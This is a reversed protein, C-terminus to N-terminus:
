NSEVERNPSFTVHQTKQRILELAHTLTTTVDISARGAIRDTAKRVDGKVTWLGAILPLDAFRNQIRKCLYRAHTVAAPPLASVCILDGRASKVADLMESALSTQSVNTAIYGARHLLQTLMLGVIEDAEDNAPLTVVNISKAPASQSLDDPDKEDASKDRSRSRDWDDMEDVLERVSRRIMQIRAEDLRNRHWDSEAMALAPLLLDDYAQQLSHDKLHERMMVAPEEEDMALLRQYMKVPPEFPPTDGLLVDLFQMQPVYKGLVVLCVTLPTALLLGIPGWLWTWFVASALVAITSLGTSSGYLWPEMVNNTFLEILVFWGVTAFLVGYGPYVLISLLIPFAAGIWPGLYPIFRLLACFLGWLILNPFTQNGVFSGIFWLGLIVSIGYTANIIFQMVLYRSIRSGADDIATTTLQLQGHGILRILRDRLNERELLMFIVLVIVIGATALPSVLPGFADRILQFTSTEVKVVRVPVPEVDAPERALERRADRGPVVDRPGHQPEAPSVAVAAQTSPQTATTPFTEFAKNIDEVTKKVGGFTDGGPLRVARIKDLVNQEYRPLDNALQVIQNSVVWTLLGILSFSFIVVLIVSSKRGLRLREVRTVLPALLFSLLVALALPVLVDQAFYLAAVIVCISALVM